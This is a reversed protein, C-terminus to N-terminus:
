AAERELEPFAVNVITVYLFGMFVAVGIVMLVKWKREVALLQKVCGM